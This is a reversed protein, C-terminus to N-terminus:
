ATLNERRTRSRMAGAALVVVGALSIWFLTCALRWHRPRYIFEIHYDGPKDLYVGKFARNVTLVEGPEHNATVTFDKAQGETLCVVGASPAHVDFATSNPLLRYDTAPVVTAQKTDELSRLGPHAAIEDASLSVFPERSNEQLQAVFEVNSFNVAIKDAFFARPWAEPNELVM